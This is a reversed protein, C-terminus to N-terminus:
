TEAKTLLERANKLAMRYAVFTIVVAVVVSMVVAQYLDVAPKISVLPIVSPILRTSVYYIIPALIALAVLFCAILNIIGWETRIMRPRPLETFDAGKIGNALSVAGLAFVLLLSEILGVLIARVSPHFVAVEVIGTVITALASFLVLFFYKSKVLSKASIPASYIRWMAGGEEGIMMNGMSMAMIAGPFILFFGILLSPAAETPPPRGMAGMTQILPLVIFVIPMIFIYMLERRRTFAKLDKRILAAEVTSFGLKGLFGTRPAYVGRSVTIAPPEYLGFRRNLIVAAYFLSSIFLLSLTLFILAQPLLGNIFSYLTMGLWVFPIFWVASQASALTQVFAIAGIGSTISFYAIYFVVFFLLSGVFRVWVAARGSSKYVAGIFRVQLIRFIETIASAMFASALLAFLTLAAYAVQGTFVSVVIIASGIFVISVLLFGLLNALISALTHEEWTIPLWSPAQVSVKVGSRQIQQMMTFVLSYILILTPLSLFLNLLGQQFLLRLQPDVVSVSNYFLGALVGAALGLTLAGGYLLYTFLRSERYKTLRRGRILRGSKMDVRILHAVNKWNM